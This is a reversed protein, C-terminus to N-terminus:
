VAFGGLNRLQLSFEVEGVPEIVRMDDLHIFAPRTPECHFQDLTADRGFQLPQGVPQGRQGLDGACQVVGMLTANHM